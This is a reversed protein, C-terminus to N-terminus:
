RKVAVIGCFASYHKSERGSRKILKNLNFILRNTNRLMFKQFASRPQSEDVWFYYGGFYGYSTVEFGKRELVAKWKVPNMSSLNHIKLNEKDFFRHPLQQMWGRFNPTTIIIKGTPKLLDTHAEIVEEFNEFHEIFGFSCVLDYRKKHEKIFDFFDGSWFDDVDFGLSHLWKPLENANRKNFDIGSLIYGKRGIAPLYSGPYSGIELCSSGKVETLHRSLFIDLSSGKADGFGQDNYGQNWYAEDTLRM